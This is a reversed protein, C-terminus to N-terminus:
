LSQVFAAKKFSLDREVRAARPVPIHGGGCAALAHSFGRKKGTRGLALPLIGSDSSYILM